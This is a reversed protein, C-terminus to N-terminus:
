IKDKAHPKMAEKLDEFMKESCRVEEGSRFLVIWEGRKCHVSIHDM